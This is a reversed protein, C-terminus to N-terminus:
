RMEDIGKGVGVIAPVKVHHRPKTTRRSSALVLRGDKGDVWTEQLPLRKGLRREQLEHLHLHNLHLRLQLQLQLQLQLVQDVWEAMYLLRGGYRLRLMTRSTGEREPLPRLRGGGKGM